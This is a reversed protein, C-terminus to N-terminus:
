RIGTTFSFVAVNEPATAPLPGSLTWRIARVCGDLGVPAGCGESLPAYTWLDSGNDFELTVAIGAPLTESTSGIVFAVEAPLSDVVEVQAAAETGLNTVTMQYTVAAGPIPVGAVTALKTMGLFPRVVGVATLDSDLVAPVAEAIGEFTIVDSTGATVDLVTYFVTVTAIAGPLLSPTLASDPLAGFTVGLGRISDIVVATGGTSGRVVYASSNLGTNRVTVTESYATGNSPLQSVSPQSALVEVGFAAPAEYAGIDFGLGLPRPEGRQDTPLGLAASAADIALSGPGLAHTRSDGGNSTLPLLSPDGTLDTGACGTCGGEVLNGGLSSVTGRIQGGTNSSNDAVITNGLPVSGGRLNLGGGRRGANGAVTVHLLQAGPRLDMGGGDQGATNGSVTVNELQVSGGRHALGGGERQATNGFITSNRITTLNTRTQIGGGRADDGGTITLGDLEVLIVGDIDLVRSGGQADLVVEGGGTNRLTKDQNIQLEGGGDVTLDYLGPAILVLTVCPDAVAARLAATTGVSVTPNCAQAQVSTPSGSMLAVLGYCAVICRARMM